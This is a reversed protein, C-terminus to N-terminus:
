KETREALGVAVAFENGLTAVTQQHQAPVNVYQFPNVPLSQIGTKSSVYEGLQPIVGAFGSLSISGVSVQPYKSNFFKVSKVLEQIFNELNLEIARFVQGELKDQALGFKLIFQRAQDEKINLNQVAAKVLTGIGIPITRVLRPVGGYIISLDTSNEGFDVILQGATSQQALARTMAISEPEAAIVNFGLNEIFELRDESYVKATSAILVEQTEPKNPSAGLLVWDAKADDIAMPIHQDLQYDMTQKLEKEDRAAVDVITTYTKQSSLSIAVNKAKIDSQGIMTTIIEGLKRRSEESNSVIIQPDVSVYGLGTLNWSNEGAKSLQVARVSNTGIDLSFFEGVGKINIMGM